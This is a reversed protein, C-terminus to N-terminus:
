FDTFASSRYEKPSVGEHRKFYRGMYSQDPFNLRDSIEQISLETSQLLVKIELLAFSDIIMKASDGNVRRCIATLYKTSICLKDAYFTVERESASFEHVLAMFKKFLEDQRNGGEIQKRGFYRYSKDYIDLLFCQLQNKAILNRFRNEKDAYIAATAQMLGEAAQTNEAPLVYYPHEKLFGFFGPEMRFSAERFMNRPFSFVSIAFDSSLRDIRFISGPLLVVQANEVIEYDKLDISVRATGGRCIFIVGGDLKWLRNTTHPLNYTGAIFSKQVLVTELNRRKMTTKKIIATFNINKM